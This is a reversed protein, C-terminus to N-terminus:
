SKEGNLLFTSEIHRRVAKDAEGQIADANALGALDAPTFGASLYYQDMSPDAEDRPLGARQRLENRTIAGRDFMPAWVKAVHEIDVLGSVDWNLVLSPDYGLILDTQITEALTRVDPMVAYRKFRQNDIEATAYNAAERVGAVSLPVGHLMFIEELTQKKSELQQLEAMSAGLRVYSVEGSLFATKGANKVGSYEKNWRQKAKEFEVPDEHANKFAVVGSPSAGQKWLYETFQDRNIQEVLVPKGAEVDGIGYHDNDPHPRKFHMVEDTELVTKKGNVTYEYGAPFGSADPIIRVRKPNLPFIARPRTGDLRTEAKFWYANGALRLHFITLYKLEGFTMWENPYSFLRDLETNAVPDTKGKKSLFHPTATVENAILDIAKWTAWVQGTGAKLYDEYNRLTAIPVGSLIGGFLNAATLTKGEKPKPSRRFLSPWKLM